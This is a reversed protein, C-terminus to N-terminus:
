LPGSMEEEQQGPIKIYGNNGGRLPLKTTIAAARIEPAAQLRQLLQLYFDRGQEFSVYKKQPLRVSATLVGDGRVGTDTARLNSFTRLLLGAGILLALSLAIESVVLADRLWQGRKGAGDGAMGKPKLAEMSDVSSSQLAPAFGFLIGVVASIAATFLLPMVGVSIPNPQPVTEPLLNRLLTVGGYAIALGLLGGVFSLLLSETLMQRVLRGRGAGLANRVAIERRRSTSRALLLNAVNACAILLVVGVAGFLILVQSQFDGVLDEKMPKVIADVNKNHDPFQKELAQAINHLDARAQAITIGNKVRGL